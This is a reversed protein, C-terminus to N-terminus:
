VKVQQSRWVPFSSYKQADIKNVFFVQALRSDKLTKGFFKNAAHYHRGEYLILTNYVNNIRVVEDFMDHYSTDMVIEGQDFRRDNEKLCWEYKEQNFKDNPKFLSTGSDLPADPTLYLVAAFVTNHDTHIVGEGYEESVSQFSTTISWRTLDDGTHFISIIKRNAKEFLSKNITFLDKTRSGPFVYNEDKMQYRYKYKQSLAFRRVEDPNEYFNELITVPYLNM